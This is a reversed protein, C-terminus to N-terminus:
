TIVGLIIYQRANVTKLYATIAPKLNYSQWIVFDNEYTRWMEIDIFLVDANIVQDYEIDIQSFLIITKGRQECKVHQVDVSFARFVMWHKGNRRRSSSGSPLYPIAGDM